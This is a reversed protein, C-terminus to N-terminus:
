ATVDPGAGNGGADEARARRQAEAIEYRIRALETAIAERTPSEGLYVYEDTGCTDPAFEPDLFRDLGIVQREGDENEILAFCTLRAAEDTEPNLAWWGSAATITVIREGRKREGRESM